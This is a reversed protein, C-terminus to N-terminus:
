RPSRTASRHVPNLASLPDQFIMAIKAGRFRRCTAEADRGLLEQGRFKASGTITARRPCCAWAGRAFTVSKGSGSEGVIGLLEGEHVDLDVGRVAQM